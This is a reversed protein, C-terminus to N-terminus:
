YAFSCASTAPALRIVVAIVDPALPRLYTYEKRRWRQELLVKSTLM